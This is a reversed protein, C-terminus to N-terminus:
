RAKRQKCHKGQSNATAKQSKGRPREENNSGPAVLHPAFGMALQKVVFKRIIIDGGDCIVLVEDGKQLGVANLVEPKLNVYLSHSRRVVRQLLYPRM